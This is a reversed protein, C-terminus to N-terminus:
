RWRHFGGGFHGFPRHFGGHFGGGFPRHFGAHFGGGFPRGFGGVRHVGGWGGGWGHRYGYGGGWYVPGGYGYGYRPYGYGYYPYGGGYYYSSGLVGATILGAAAAGFAAAGPDYGYGHPYGGYYYRVRAHRCGCVRGRKYRVQDVQSTLGVVSASAVSTVGALAEGPGFAVAITACLAGVGLKFPHQM